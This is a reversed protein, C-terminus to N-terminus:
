RGPFCVAAFCGCFPVTLRAQSFFVVLVLCFALISRWPMFLYRIDYYLPSFSSTCASLFFLGCIDLTKSFDQRVPQWFLLLCFTNFIFCASTTSFLTQHLPPGHSTMSIIPTCSEAEDSCAERCCTLPRVSHYVLVSLSAPFVHEEM